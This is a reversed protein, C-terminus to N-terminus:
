GPQLAALRRLVQQAIDTTMARFLLAEEEEKALVSTESTSLDRTLLLESPALLERGERTRVRFRLRQRLRVERVQGVATSAVVSRQRRDELAQLVVEAEAASEVVRTSTHALQLRLEAALESRPAFGVMALTRFRLEPARRLEFGCSGVALLGPLAASALLLRRRATM